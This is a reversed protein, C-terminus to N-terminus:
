KGISNNGTRNPAVMKISELSYKSDYKDDDHDDTTIVIGIRNM